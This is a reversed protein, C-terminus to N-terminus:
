RRAYTCYRYAIGNEEILESQETMTWDEEEFPFFTDADFRREIRTLELKHTYPLFQDYVTGGGIVCVEDAPVDACVARVEDVSHCVAAGECAFDPDRTLIINRRGVLPRGGPFTALTKRGLIVTKGMTLERFHKLDGPLHCLLGGDKGIGNQLDVAMVAIM